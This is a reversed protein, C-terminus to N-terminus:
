FGGSLAVSRFGHWVFVRFNLFGVVSKFVLSVALFAQLLDALVARSVRLLGSFPLALVSLFIGLLRVGVFSVPPRVLRRFSLLSLPDGSALPSPVIWVFSFQIVLSVYCLVLGLVDSVPHHARCDVTSVHDLGSGALIASSLGYNMCVMDVVRFNELDLPQTMSTM